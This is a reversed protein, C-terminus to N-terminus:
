GAKAAVPPNKVDSKVSQPAMPEENAQVRNSGPAAPSAHSKGTGVGFLLGCFVGVALGASVVVPVVKSTGQRIPPRPMQGMQGHGMQGMHGMHGGGQGMPQGGMNQPGMPYPGQNAM